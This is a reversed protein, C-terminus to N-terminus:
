KPIRVRLTVKHKLGYIIGVQEINLLVKDYGEDM